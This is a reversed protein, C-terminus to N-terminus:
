GFPSPTSATILTGSLKATIKKLESVVDATGPATQLIERLRQETLGGFQRFAADEGQTAATRRVNSRLNQEALVGALNQQNIVDFGGAGTLNGVGIREIRGQESQFIQQRINATKRALERDSLERDGRGSSSILVQFGTWQDVLSKFKEDIRAQEVRAAEAENAMELQHLEVLAKEKLKKSAVIRDQEKVWALDAAFGAESEIKAAAAKDAAAKDADLRKGEAIADLYLTRERQINDARAQANKEHAARVKELQAVQADAAKKTSEVLEKLAEEQAESFGIITRAVKDAIDKINLGLATAVSLMAFRLDLKKFISKGARDAALETQNLVSRFQSNDATLRTNIESSSPM